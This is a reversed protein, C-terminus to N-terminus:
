PWAECRRPESPRAFARAITGAPSSCGAPATTSTTGSSAASPQACARPETCSWGRAHGVARGCPRGRGAGRHADVDPDEGPEALVGPRGAGGDLHGAARRGPVGDLGEPRREAPGVGPPRHDEGDVAVVDGVVRHEVVAVLEGQDRRDAAPRLERGADNAGAHGGLRDVLRLEVLEDRPGLRARDDREGARGAVHRLEVVLGVLLHRGLPDGRDQALDDRLVPRGRRGGQVPDALHRPRLGGHDDGHRGRVAALREEGGALAQVADLGLGRDPLLLDVALLAGPHRPRQRGDRLRAVRRGRTRVRVGRGRGTRRRDTRAAGGRRGERARATLGALPVGAAVQRVQPGVARGRHDVDAALRDRLAPRDGRRQQRRRGVGGRPDRRAVQGLAVDEADGPDGPDGGGLAHGVEHREGVRERQRLDVDGRLDDRLEPLDADM